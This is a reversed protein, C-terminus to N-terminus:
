GYIYRIDEYPVQDYKSLYNNLVDACITLDGDNFNYHRSWGQSGFKRRGLILSHFMCLGFLLAKYEPFKHEKAREFHFDTFHAFARKLNAKLDSPAENSVKVCNQLISEPVSKYDPM